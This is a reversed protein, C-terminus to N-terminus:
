NTEEKDNSYIDQKPISIGQFENNMGYEENSELKEQYVEQIQKTQVTLVQELINNELIDSEDKSVNSIPLSASSEYVDIDALPYVIVGLIMLSFIFKLYKQMSGNPLIIELFSLVAIIIFINWVWERM